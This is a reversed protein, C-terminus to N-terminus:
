SMGGAPWGSEDLSALVATTDAGIETAGPRAIRGPSRSLTPVVAAM